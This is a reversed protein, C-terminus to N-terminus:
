WIFVHLLLYWMSVSAVRFCFVIREWLLSYRYVVTPVYCFYVSLFFIQLNQRFEGLPSVANSDDSFPCYQLIGFFLVHSSPRRFFTERLDMDVLIPFPSRLIESFLWVRVSLLAHRKSDANHAVPTSNARSSCCQPRRIHLQLIIMWLTAAPWFPNTLTPWTISQHNSKNSM